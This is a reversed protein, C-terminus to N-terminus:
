DSCSLDILNAKDLYNRIIKGALNIWRKCNGLVVSDSSAVIWDTAALKRDPNNVVEVSWPYSNQGAIQRILVSLRGSNSVPRDLLWLIRLAGTQQLCKGIIEIAPKTESVKRWTGYLGALDRCCGDRAIFVPAGSLAAEITILVNYGDLMIDAGELGSFAKQRQLRQVLQDDSCACRKVALRQRATLGFRDGVLKLASKEAYQKTLLMSFDTLAQRLKPMQEPAFLKADAPAPGRHRRKDPM